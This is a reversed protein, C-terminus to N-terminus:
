IPTMMRARWVFDKLNKAYHINEERLVQKSKWWCDTKFIYGGLDPTAVVNDGDVGRRQEVPPRPRPGRRHQGHRKKRRKQGQHPQKKRQTQGQKSERWWAQGRSFTKRIKRTTSIKRKSSGAAKQAVTAKAWTLTDLGVEIAARGM